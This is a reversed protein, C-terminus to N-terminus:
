DWMEERNFYEEDSGYIDSNKVKLSHLPRLVNVLKQGWFTIFNERCIYLAGLMQETLEFQYISIFNRVDQYIDAIDESIYSLLPRDSYEMEKKFVDLYTDDEGLVESVKHAVRTYDAEKVFTSPAEEYVESVEPLMSAKLYLLPLLKLMNDIWQPRPLQDESELLACFEVSVAVFEIVNKDYIIEGNRQQEM